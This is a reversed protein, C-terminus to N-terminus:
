HDKTKKRRRELVRTDVLQKTERKRQVGPTRSEIPNKVVPNATLYVNLMSLAANQNKIDLKLVTVLTPNRM